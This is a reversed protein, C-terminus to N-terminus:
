IRKFAKQIDKISYRLVVPRGHPCSIPCDTKALETLLWEMKNQDLPMNVKIAAHCAISAAIRARLQQLNIAQEERAVQDILEHLLHEVQHSEIGAPALKVVISRAGFPEAEFGNQALEQSIEPFVAQQAPTLELVLPMLLRQSEVRQAARQKLLIEFLVREHAVHQDIIWLGQQDVALIFSERIQGLCKLSSLSPALDSVADPEEQIPPACGNGPFVPDPARALAVAANAEVSIGDGGFQLRETIAPLVPAQLAFGPPAAPAYAARWAAIDVTSRSGPTLSPTATPRATMETVFQPVPRAKVLAARVSDRVFDHM